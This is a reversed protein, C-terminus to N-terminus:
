AGLRQSAWYVPSHELAVAQTWSQRAVSGERSALPLLTPSKLAAGGGPLM